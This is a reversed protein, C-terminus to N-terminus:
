GDITADQGFFPSRTSGDRRNGQGVPLTSSVGKKPITFVKYIKELKALTSRAQNRLEQSVIVRGGDFMPSMALAGNFVIANRVDATENLEDGSVEIPTFGFEIDESLWMECMSNIVKRGDEIAEPNAPSAVSHANIQKLCDQVLETGTSM